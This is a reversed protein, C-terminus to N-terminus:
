SRIISCNWFSSSFPQSDAVTPDFLDIDGGHDIGRPEVDVSTRESSTVARVRRDGVGVLLLGVVVVLAAAVPWNRRWRRRRALTM